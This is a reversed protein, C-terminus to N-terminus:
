LYTYATSSRCLDDYRTILAYELTPQVPLSPFRQSATGGRKSVQSPSDANLLRYPILYVRCPPSVFRAPTALGQSQQRHHHLITAAADKAWGKTSMFVSAAPMPAHVAVDDLVHWAFCTGQSQNSKQLFLAGLPAGSSTSRSRSCTKGEGIMSSTRHFNWM